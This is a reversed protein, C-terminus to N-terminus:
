AYSAYYAIVLGMATLLIGIVWRFDVSTRKREEQAGRRANMDDLVTQVRGNLNQLNGNLEGYQGAIRAQMENFERRISELSKEQVATQLRLEGIRDSHEHIKNWLPEMTAHQEGSM